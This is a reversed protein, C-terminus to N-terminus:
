GACARALGERPRVQLSASFEPNLMVLRGQPGSQVRVLHRQKLQARTCRTLCRQSPLTRCRPRALVLAAKFDVHKGWMDLLQPPTGQPM